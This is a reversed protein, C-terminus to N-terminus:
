ILSQLYETRIRSAEEATDYLGLSIVINKGSKLFGLKAEYKNRAKYVGKYGTNSLRTTPRKIQVEVEQARTLKKSNM